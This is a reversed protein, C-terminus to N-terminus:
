SGLKQTVWPVLTALADDLKTDDGGGAMAMDPKGGGKAGIHVGVANVVDGAKIRGIQDKTVGAALQVKNDNVAALVIVASALKDKMQDMTARLAKADAGDLRAALVKIGNVELAQSSLDGAAASAMKSKLQDITKELEKIQSQSAQVKNSLQDTSCKYVSRLESLLDDTQHLQAMAYPGVVAEIRRVGAAIGAESSIRLLGIDGTREVHTGGCLEKSFGDKGMSLVRVQDDYKEGFLAMAGAARASDIDMLDTVVATNAQIQDNVIQEVQRLESSSVAELHSFDFRLKDFAVMSGRQQVHEGLVLRLAAHLLHTASHHRATNNREERKVTASLQEGLKVSGSTVSVQHLHHGQLKTCDNVELRATQSELRGTDGSQGGSEAYFSTRDLIVIGDEGQNLEEVSQQNKLLKVVTGTAVLSDYGLFETEGELALDLDRDMKFKNASKARQRQENM